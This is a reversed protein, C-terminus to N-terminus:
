LLYQVAVFIGNIYEKEPLQAAETGCNGCEHTQSRNIYNGPDSWMNGAASYASRDHSYIFRGCVCSHLFQSQPRAIEQRPINTESKRYQNKATHPAQGPWAFHVLVLTGHKKETKLSPKM